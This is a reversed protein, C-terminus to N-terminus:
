MLAGGTSSHFTCGSVPAPEAEAVEEAPARAQEEIPAPAPPVAAAPAEVAAVAPAPATAGGAVARIRELLERAPAIGHGASAMERMRSLEDLSAQLVEIASDGARITGSELSALFSELEHSVDGMARIGAMRAGGKLTHLLRKLETVQSADARDRRWRSLAADAQELLETAEEGFIAAIDADFEADATSALAPEAPPPGTEAPPPTVGFDPPAEHPATHDADAEASDGLLEAMEPLSPETLDEGRLAAAEVAPEIPAVPAEVVPAEEASRWLQGVTREAAEALRALEADLERDLAHWGAILHGQEPFYGTNEDVHESVAELMRVTDGLLALGADPLGHGNEYLKRVYHEMPEAVKIGQRAGATKAIGSLTHCARYLTESIPHPAVSRGCREIFARVLAIHGATEKRYIERLVPEMEAPPEAAMQAPSAPEEAAVPPPLSVPPPASVEEVAAAALHPAAETPAVPMPTAERGSLADARAMIGGVDASTATGSEIEDVLHTMAAIGDRVVEVVEPSRALTQSILRNLLSEISWSFEGLRRAGVMRGSGKLTHFARRMDRL